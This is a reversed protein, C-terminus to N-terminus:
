TKPYINKEPLRVNALAAGYLCMSGRSLARFFGADKNESPFKYYLHACEKPSTETGDHVEELHFQVESIVTVTKGEGNVGNIVMTAHVGVYGTYYEIDEQFKDDFAILYGEDEVKKKLLQIAVSMQEPTSCIITARLSDNVKGVIYERPSDNLRSHLEVKKELSEKTKIMYQNKDGMHAKSNSEECVENIINLFPQSVIHAHNLLTPVDKASNCYADSQSLAKFKPLKETKLAAAIQIKDKKWQEYIISPSAALVIGYESLGPVYLAGGNKEVHKIAKLIAPPLNKPIQGTQFIVTHKVDEKHLVADKIMPVMKLVGNEEKMFGTQVLKNHYKIVMPDNMDIKSSNAIDKLLDIFEPPQTREIIHLNKRVKESAIQLLQNADGIHKGQLFPLYVVPLGKAYDIIRKQDEKSIKLFDLIKEEAEHPIYGTQVIGEEGNILGMEYLQNMFNKDNLSVEHLVLIVKKGKAKLDVALQAMIQATNKEDPNLTAEKSLDFEDLVVVEEKSELLEKLIHDYNEKLWKNEEKKLAPYDNWKAGSNEIFENRLDFLNPKGCALAVQETKGTSPAGWIVMSGNQQLGKNISRVVPLTEYIAALEPNPSLAKSQSVAQAGRIPRAPALAGNRKLVQSSVEQIKEKTTKPLKKALHPMVQKAMAGISKVIGRVPEM